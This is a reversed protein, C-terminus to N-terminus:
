FRREGPAYLSKPIVNGNKMMNEIKLLELYVSAPLIDLTYDSYSLGVGDNNISMVSYKEEPKGDSFSKAIWVITNGWRKLASTIVHGPYLHEQPSDVGISFFGKEASAELVGQGTLGAAHFIVDAGATNLAQAAEKGKAPDFHTGVFISKVTIEPDVFAVGDTFGILFDHIIPVDYGGVFGVMKNENIGKIQAHTTMLGACVGALFSAENQMFSVCYLNDYDLDLEADVSVFSVKPFSPVVKPVIEMFFRGTVLIVLDFNQAAYIVKSQALSADENCEIWATKQLGLEEKLRLFGEYTADAWAKDGRQSEVVVAVSLEAAVLNAVCLLVGLVVLLVKKM